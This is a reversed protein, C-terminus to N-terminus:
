TGPEFNYFSNKFNHLNLRSFLESQNRTEQKQNSTAESQDSILGILRM